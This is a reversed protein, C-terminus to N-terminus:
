DQLKLWKLIAATLVEWNPAFSASTLAPGHVDESSSYSKILTSKRFVFIRCPPRNFILICKKKHLCSMFRQVYVAESQYLSLDHVYRWTLAIQIQKRQRLKQVQHNLSIKSNHQTLISFLKAYLEKIKHLWVKLSNLKINFIIYRKEISM